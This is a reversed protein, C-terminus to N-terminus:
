SVPFVIYSFFISVFNYHATTSGTSMWTRELGQEHFMLTDEISRLLLREIYVFLYETFSRNTYYAYQKARFLQLYLFM